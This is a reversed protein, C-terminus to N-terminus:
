KLCGLELLFSWRDEKESIDADVGEADQKRRNM